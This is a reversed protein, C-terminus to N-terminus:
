GGFGPRYHWCFAAAPCWLPCGSPPPHPVFHGDRAYRVADWAHAVALAMAEEPGGDFGSLTFGSAKAHRVHWYFGDVPEGLGLADRVALAYLPVQLKEGEAVARHTYSWPGATKYDIIRVQGSPTRDVRDILGRVRLSDGDDHVILPPQGRLGFTTEYLYPVFDGQVEALAELSSHVNKEIEDRTQWWWATARFGEQRPAEDLVAGAVEPLAALLQDLDTPDDVTPYLRELIRHYINGRQRVDLGETPEERPELGLVSGV